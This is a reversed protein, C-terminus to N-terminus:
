QKVKKMNADYLQDGIIELETILEIGGGYFNIQPGGKANLANYASVTKNQELTYFEKFEEFSISKKDKFPNIITKIKKGTKLSKATIKLKGDDTYIKLVVGPLGHFKWPSVKYPVDTTFYAIYDRGRFSVKAENCQYGMVEITEGTLEWEMLNLNEHVIAEPEIEQYTMSNNPIDKYIFKKEIINEVVGPATQLNYNRVITQLNTNADSVSEITFQGTHQYFNFDYEVFLQENQGNIGHNFM